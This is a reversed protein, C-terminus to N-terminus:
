GDIRVAQHSFLMFQHGDGPLQRQPNEDSCGPRRKKGGLVGRGLSDRPGLAGVPTETGGLGNRRRNDDLVLCIVGDQPLRDGLRHGSERCLKEVLLAPRVREVRAVRKADEHRARFGASYEPERGTGEVAPVQDVRHNLDVSTLKGGILDDAFRGTEEGEGRNRAISHSVGAEQRRGSRLQQRSGSRRRLLDFGRAGHGSGRGHAQRIMRARHPPRQKLLERLLCAAGDSQAFDPFSGALTSFIGQRAERLSIRLLGTLQRRDEHEVSRRTKVGVELGLGTGRVHAEVIQLRSGEVGGRRGGPGEGM